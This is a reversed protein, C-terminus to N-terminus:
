RLVGVVVQTGSICVWVRIESLYLAPPGDHETLGRVRRDMLFGLFRVNGECALEKEKIRRGCARL